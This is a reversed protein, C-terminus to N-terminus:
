DVGDENEDGGDMKAGCEPCYNLTPEGEGEVEFRCESCEWEDYVPFGDAYGDYGVPIWRGHRVPQYETIKAHYQCNDARTVEYGACVCQHICNTCESMRKEETWRLEVCPAFNLILCIETTKITIIVSAVNMRVHHNGAQRWIRIYGGDM